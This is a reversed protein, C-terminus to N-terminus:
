FAIMALRANAKEVMADRERTQNEPYYGVRLRRQSYGDYYIKGGFGLAGQFRWERCVPDRTFARIFSEAEHEDSLLRSGCEQSIIRLADEAQERTLPTDPM